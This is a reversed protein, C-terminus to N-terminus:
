TLENICKLLQEIDNAIYVLEKLIKEKNLINEM